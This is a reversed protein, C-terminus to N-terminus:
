PVFALGVVVIVVSAVDRGSEDASSAPGTAFRRRDVEVCGGSPGPAAVVVVVVVVVVLSFGLLDFTSSGEIFFARARGAKDNALIKEDDLRGECGVVVVFKDLFTDPFFLLLLAGGSGGAAATCTTVRRLM